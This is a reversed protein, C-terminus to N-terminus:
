APQGVVANWGGLVAGDPTGDPKLPTYKIQLSGYVFTITEKPYDEDSGSLVIALKTGFVTNFEMRMYEVSQSAGAKRLSITVTKYHAGSCLNQFVKPTARDINRTVQFANFKIKGAGAGGTASGITTPNEVDFSFSQIEITGEYGKAKADGAIKSGQAPELILYADTAM